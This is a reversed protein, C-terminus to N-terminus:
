DSKLGKHHLLIEPQQLPNSLRWYPHVCAPACSHVDMVYCCCAPCCISQGSNNYLGTCSTVCSYLTTEHLSTSTNLLDVMESFGETYNVKMWHINNLGPELDIRRQPIFCDTKNKFSQSGAWTEEHSKRWCTTHLQSKLCRRKKWRTM